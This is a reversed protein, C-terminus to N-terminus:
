GPAFVTANLRSLSFDFEHALALSVLYLLPVRPTTITFTSITPAARDDERSPFERYGSFNAAM